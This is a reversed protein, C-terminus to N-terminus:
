AMRRRNVVGVAGLLLVGEGIAVWQWLHSRDHVEIVSPYCVASDYRLVVEPPDCDKGAQCPNVTGNATQATAAMSCGLILLTLTHKM